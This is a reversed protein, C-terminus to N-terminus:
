DHLSPDSKKRYTEQKGLKAKLGALDVGCVGGKGCPIKGYGRVSQQFLPNKVSIM